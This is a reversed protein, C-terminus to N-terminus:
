SGSTAAGTDRGATVSRGGFEYRVAFQMCRGAQADCTALTGNYRGFGSRDPLMTVNATDFKATNTLNFVDARIRLKHDRYGLPFAKSLSLDVSFYGDGRLVNRLGVEGPLAFRFLKLAETPNKFASPRGDM